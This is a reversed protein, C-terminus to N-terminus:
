QELTFTKAKKKCDTSTQFGKSYQRLFYIKDLNSDFILDCLELAQKFYIDNFSENINLFENKRYREMIEEPKLRLSAELLRTCVNINNQWIISNLSGNPCRFEITNMNEEINTLVNNNFNVAIYRGYYEFRDRLEEYFKDKRKNDDIVLRFYDSVPRAYNLLGSRATIFEGFFFRLLVPEYTAWLLCFNYYNTPNTGLIQSGVHIHGGAHSSGYMRAEKKLVYFMKDVQKWDSPTNKLIPSTVEGGDHVSGDRKSEFEKLDKELLLDRVKERDGEDYEVEIGFTEIDSINLKDRYELLYKELLNLFQILDKNNLKILLDNTNPDIFKFIDLNQDILRM